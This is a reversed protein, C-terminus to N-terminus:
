REFAGGTERAVTSRTPRRGPQRDRAIKAITDAEGPQITDLGRDVRDRGPSCGEAQAGSRAREGRRRLGVNLWSTSARAPDEHAALRQRDPVVVHDPPRGASSSPRRSPSRRRARPTTRACTSTSSRGRTREPSSPACATSTTTTATSRRGANGGYVAPRSSRARSRPRRPHLRVSAARRPRTRRSRTRSTAPRRAPWRRSGSSSRRPLAVAVVRDKFSNTPNAADNKVWVEGLGLQEALRDARVLPTFGPRSTSRQGTPSRCSTPTAGSRRAPGGPDQAQRDAADSTARLRLRGRAARLLIRLRLRGRARVRERVGQM